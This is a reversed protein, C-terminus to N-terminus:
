DAMLGMGELLDEIDEREMPSTIRATHALLDVAASDVGERAALAESLEGGCAACHNKATCFACKVYTVPIVYERQEVLFGGRKKWLSKETYCCAPSFFLGKGRSTHFFLRKTEERSGKRWRAPSSLATWM